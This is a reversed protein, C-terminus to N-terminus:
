SRIIESPYIVPSIPENDAGSVMIEDIKGDVNYPKTTIQFMITYVHNAEFTITSIPITKWGEPLILISKLDIGSAVTVPNWGPWPTEPEATWDTQEYVIIDALMDLPAIDGVIRKFYLGISNATISINPKIFTVVWMLPIEGDEIRPHEGFPFEVIDSLEPVFQAM